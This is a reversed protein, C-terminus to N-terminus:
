ERNRASCPGTASHKETAKQGAEDSGTEFSPCYRTDCSLRFRFNAIDTLALFSNYVAVRRYPMYNRMSTSYKEVKGARPGTRALM